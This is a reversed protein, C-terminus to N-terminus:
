AANDKQEKFFLSHIKLGAIMIISSTSLALIPSHEYPNLSNVVIPVIAAIMGFLLSFFSLWGPVYSKRISAIVIPFLAIQFSWCCYLIDSFNTVFKLSWVYFFFIFILFIITLYRAMSITRFRKNLQSLWDNHITFSISSILSDVTSFMISIISLVFLVVVFYGFFTGTAQFKVLFITVADYPNSINPVIYRLIMGFFIAIIWTIPSYVMIVRISSVLRKRYDSFKEKDYEVSALRQWQGIDVVQYLGNAILLSLLTIGGLSFPNAIQQEKFFVVWASASFFQAKNEGPLVIILLLVISYLLISFFLPFTNIILTKMSYNSSTLHTKWYWLLPISTIILFFLMLVSAIFSNTQAVNFLLASMVLSFACYGIGLQISDTRVIARFGGYLMYIAGVILFTAFLLIHFNFITSPVMDSDGLSAILNAVLKGSFEAEFMAPGAIGLLSALAALGGLIRLNGRNSLFQHITGINEQKLFSDLKGKELLISLLYYGLAWFIPVWITWFGYLYGWTAFLTIVAVQLAYTITSDIFKETKITRTGFHYEEFTTAKQSALTVIIYIIPGSLIAFLLIVLYM